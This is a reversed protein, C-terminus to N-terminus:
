RKKLRAGLAKAERECDTHGYRMIRLERNLLKCRLGM